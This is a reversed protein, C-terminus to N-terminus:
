VAMLLLLTIIGTIKVVRREMNCSVNASIFSGSPTFQLTSEIYTTLSGNTRFDTLTTTVGDVSSLVETTNLRQMINPRHQYRIPDSNQWTWLLLDITSESCKFTIKM